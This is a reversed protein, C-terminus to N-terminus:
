WFASIYIRCREAIDVIHYYYGISLIIGAIGVYVSDIQIDIQDDVSKEAADIAYVIAETTKKIDVIVGKKVGDTYSCSGAGMVNITRDQKLEGIVACVKTTGIDLGVIIIDDM